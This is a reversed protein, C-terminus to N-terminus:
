VQDNVRTVRGFANLAGFNNTTLNPDSESGNPQGNQGAKKREFDPCDVKISDNRQWILWKSVAHYDMGKRIMRGPLWGPVLTNGDVRFAATNGKLMQLALSFRKISRYREGLSNVRPIILGM